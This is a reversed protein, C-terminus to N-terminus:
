KARVIEVAGRGCFYKIEPHMERRIELAHKWFTGIVSVDDAVWSSMARIKCIELCKLM